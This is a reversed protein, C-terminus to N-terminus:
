SLQDAVACVLVRCLLTMPGTSCISDTPIQKKFWCKCFLLKEFFEQLVGMLFFYLLFNLLSLKKSVPMLKDLETETELKYRERNQAPDATQAHTSKTM